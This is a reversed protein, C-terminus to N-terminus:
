TTVQLLIAGKELQYKTIAIKKEQHQLDEQWCKVIEQEDTRITDDLLIDIGSANFYALIHPLAPYRAHKGTSGPPGDVLVLIRGGTFEAGLKKLIGRCDYYSYTTNDPANYPALPTLELQVANDLGANALQEATKKYYDDLHEFSVLKAATKQRKEAQQLLAKAIVVTSIGSGFEIILDYHNFDILKILLMALDPSIPWKTLETHLVPTRGTAFYNEASWFSEIHNTANFLEKSLTKNILEHAHKLEDNQKQLQELLLKSQKTLVEQMWSQQQEDRQALDARALRNKNLEEEKAELTATLQRIQQELGTVHEVAQLLSNKEKEWASEKNRLETELSAIQYQSRKLEPALHHQDKVYLAHGITPHLGPDTGICHFGHKQIFDSADQQQFSELTGDLVERTILVDIQELLTEAGKLMTIAMFTDIVLWNVQHQLEQELNDLTITKLSVKQKSTINPWLEKLQRPALLGNEAPSSYRYFTSEGTTDSILQRLIKWSPNNSFAKELHLVQTEDAEILLVGEMNQKLLLDFWPGRGTGAGVIIAGQIPFVRSLCELSALPSFPTDTM